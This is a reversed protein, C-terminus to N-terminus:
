RLEVLRGRYTDIGFAGDVPGYLAVLIRGDYVSVSEEISGALQVDWLPEGNRGFFYLTGNLSGILVGNEVVTPSSKFSGQVQAVIRASGDTPSFRVLQGSGTVAYGADGAIVPGSLFGDFGSAKWLPELDPLTWATISGSESTVYVRGDSSAAEGVLIEDSGAAARRLGLRRTLTYLSDMSVYLVFDNAILPGAVPPRPFQTRWIQVQKDIDLAFLLGTETAAFLTDGAASIPRRVSPFELKWIDAGDYMSMIRLRGETEIAAYIIGGIVLLPVPPGDLKKKWYQSGDQRNITYIHRDSSGAVIVNETVVATGRFGSVVSATWVANPAQLSVRQTIFPARSIDGLHTPWYAGDDVPAPSGSSGCGAIALVGASLWLRRAGPHLRPFNVSM